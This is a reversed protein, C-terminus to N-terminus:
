AGVGKLLSFALALLPVLSLLTTYVLSMARMSIQGDLLDRFLAYLYRGALRLEHQVRSLAEHEGWLADRLKALSQPIM